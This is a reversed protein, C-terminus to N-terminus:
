VVAVTTETVTLLVTMVVPQVSGEGRGEPKAVGHGDKVTDGDLTEELLEREMLTM